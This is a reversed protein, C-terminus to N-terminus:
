PSFVIVRNMNRQAILATAMKRAMRNTGPMESCLPSILTIQSAKIKPNIFAKKLGNSVKNVQGKIM